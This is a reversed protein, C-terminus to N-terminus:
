RSLLYLKIIDMLKKRDKAWAKPKYSASKLEDGQKFCFQPSTTSQFISEIEEVGFKSTIRIEYHNKKIDVFLPSYSDCNIVNGDYKIQLDTPVTLSTTEFTFNVTASDSWSLMTVDYEFKKLGSLDKITHPMLFFLMGDRTMRSNYRNEASQSHCVVVVGIILFIAWIRKM